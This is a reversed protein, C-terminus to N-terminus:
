HPKNSRSFGRSNKHLRWNLLNLSRSQYGFVSTTGVKNTGVIEVFLKSIELTYAKEGIQQVGSRQEGTVVLCYSFDLAVREMSSDAKKRTKL